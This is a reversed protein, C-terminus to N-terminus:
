VCNIKLECVGFINRERGFIRKLIKRGFTVLKNEDTNITALADCMYVHSNTEGATQIVNSKDVITVM